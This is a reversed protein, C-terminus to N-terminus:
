CIAPEFHVGSANNIMIVEDSHVETTNTKLPKYKLWLTQNGYKSFVFITCNLITAMAALEVETGWKGLEAMQHSTIHEVVDPISNHIVSEMLLVNDLMFTVIHERIQSHYDQSGTLIHSFARFLCNGDGVTRCTPLPKNKPITITGSGHKIGNLKKIELKIESAKMKQWDECVPTVTICDTPITNDYILDQSKNEDSENSKEQENNSHAKANDKDIKTVNINKKPVEHNGGSKQKKGPSLPPQNYVILNKSNAIKKIPEKDKNLLKYTNKGCVKAISYPGTRRETFKGGKRDERVLNKLLVLDGVSFEKKQAKQRRKDYGAKQRTQAKNINKTVKSLMKNRIATMIEIKKAISEESDFSVQDNSSQNYQLEIPLVAQRNYLIQFPTLKTSYHQSTRYAFLVAPLCDVWNSSDKISKILADKLTQNQREVLGNAQPHYASTINQKTGTMKHLEASIKNVFERGQDNIQIKVCGHRCIIDEFLFRAVSEATHDKLPRAEPWKSFYDMAVVVCNFGDDTKPLNTIDIGIQVMVESPVPVPHLEGVDIKRVPNVKQCRDCSLIFNTVDKGVNKWFFRELIKLRTKAVGIHSGLCHSTDSDGSGIHISKVISMQEDHDRIVM